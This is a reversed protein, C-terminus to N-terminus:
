KLTVPLTYLINTPSFYFLSLPSSQLAPPMKLCPSGPLGGQSPSMEPCILFGRPPPQVHLHGSAQPPRTQSSPLLSPNPQTSPIILPSGCFQMRPPSPPVPTLGQESRPTGPRSSPNPVQSYIRLPHSLLNRPECLASCRQEGLQAARLQLSPSPVEPGPLPHPAAGLAEPCPAHPGASFASLLCPSGGGFEGPPRGLPWLPLPSTPRMLGPLAAGGRRSSSVEDERGSTPAWRQPQPLHLPGQQPM